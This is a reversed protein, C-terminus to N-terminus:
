SIATPTNFPLLSADLPQLAAAAQALTAEDGDVIVLVHGSAIEDEFKQRVTDPVSAGALMGAWSGVAAGGLTLAAVGALTLGLPPIVMAALGVLLGSGAGGVVGKLAGQAFDSRHEIHANDIQTLEIDQRAILSIDEDSMGIRRLTAVAREATAIDPTSYVHRRKM